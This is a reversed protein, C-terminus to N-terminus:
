DGTTHVPGSEGASPRDPVQDGQDKPGHQVEIEGVGMCRRCDWYEQCTYPYGCCDQTYHGLGECDPCLAVELRFSAVPIDQGGDNGM